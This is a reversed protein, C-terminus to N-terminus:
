WGTSLWLKWDGGIGIKTVMYGLRELSAILKQTQAWGYPPEVWARAM